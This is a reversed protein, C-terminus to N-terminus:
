PETQRDLHALLVGQRVGDLVDLLELVLDLFQLLLEVFRRVVRPVLLAARRTGLGDGGGSFVRLVLYRTALLIRMSTFVFRDTPGRAKKMPNDFYDAVAV